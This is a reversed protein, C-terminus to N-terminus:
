RRTYGRRSRSSFRCSGHPGSHVSTGYWFRRVHGCQCGFKRDICAVMNIFGLLCKDVRNILVDLYFLFIKIVILLGEHSLKWPNSKGFGHSSSTQSILTNYSCSHQFLKNKEPDPELQEPGTPHAPPDPCQLFNRLPGKHALSDWVYGKWLAYNLNIKSCTRLSKGHLTMQTTSCQYKHHQHIRAGSRTWLYTPSIM